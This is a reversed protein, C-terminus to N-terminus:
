VNVNEAVLWVETSNAIGCNPVAILWQPVDTIISPLNSSSLDRTNVYPCVAKVFMGAAVVVEAVVAVPETPANVNATAEAAPIRGPIVAIAEPIGVPEITVRTLPKFMVILWGIVVANDVVDIVNEPPFEFARIDIRTDGDTSL